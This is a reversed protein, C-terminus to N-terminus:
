NQGLLVWNSGWLEKPGNKCSVERGTVRVDVGRMDFDDRVAPRTHGNIALRVRVGEVTVAGLGAIDFDGELAVDTKGDLRSYLAESDKFGSAGSEM